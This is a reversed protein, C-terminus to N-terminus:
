NISLKSPQARYYACFQTWPSFDSKSPDVIVKGNNDYNRVETGGPKHSWHLPSTSTNDMRIWHFNTDPWILLAVYHGQGAPPEGHPLTTGVLQLGDRQAAAGMDACTNQTWKQGSGRGPQPFTNTVVDSGYAYCNNDAQMTVFCGDDDTNPNYVPPSDPGRLPVQTCMDGQPASLSVFSRVRELAAVASAESRRMGLLPLVHAVVSPSVGIPVSSEDGDVFIHPTRPASSLLVHELQRWGQVLVGHTDGFCSVVLGRYGMAHSIPVSPSRSARIASQSLAPIMLTKFSEWHPSTKNFRWMPDPTGSFVRLTVTVDELDSFCRLASIRAAADTVRAKEGDFPMAASLAVLVVFLFCVVNRVFM